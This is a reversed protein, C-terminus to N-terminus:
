QLKFEAFLPLHRIDLFYKRTKTSSYCPISHTHIVKCSDCLSTTSRYRVLWTDQTFRGKCLRRRTQLLLIFLFLQEQNHRSSSHLSNQRTMTVGLLVPSQMQLAELTQHPRKVIGTQAIWCVVFFSNQSDHFSLNQLPDSLLAPAQWCFQVHRWRTITIDTPIRQSTPSHQKLSPTVHLFAKVKHPFCSWNSSAALPNKNWHRM